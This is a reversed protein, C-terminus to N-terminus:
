IDWDTKGCTAMRVSYEPHEMKWRWFVTAPIEPCAPVQLVFPRCKEAHEGGLCAIITLVLAM